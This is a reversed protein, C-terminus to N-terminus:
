APRTVQSAEELARALVERARDGPRGAEDFDSSTAYLVSPVSWGQLSAVAARLGTDLSLFHTPAAATAALVCAKGVLANEPLHDLLLKLLGSYTARYVPTALVLCRAGAIRAIAADLSSHGGRFLLADADITGIDLADGGGLEVALRVLAHTKSTASPSGNIALLELDTRM